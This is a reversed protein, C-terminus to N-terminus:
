EKRVNVKFRMVRNYDFLIDLYYLSNNTVIYDFEYRNGNQKFSVYQQKQLALTDPKWSRKQRAMNEWRGIVPNHFVNSNVQLYRLDGM